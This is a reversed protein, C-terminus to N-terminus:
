DFFKDKPLIGDATVGKRILWTAWIARGNALTPDVDSNGHFSVGTVKTEEGECNKTVGKV